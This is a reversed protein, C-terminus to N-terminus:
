HLESVGSFLFSPQGPRSIRSLFRSDPQVSSAAGGGVVSGREWVRVQLSYNSNRACPQEVDALPPGHLTSQIFQLEALHHQVKRNCDQEWLQWKKAYKPYNM